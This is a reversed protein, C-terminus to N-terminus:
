ARGPFSLFIGINQAGRFYPLIYTMFSVTRSGKGYAVCRTCCQGTKEIHGEPSGKLARKLNCCCSLFSTASEWQQWSKISVWCPIAPSNLKKKHTRESIVTQQEKGVRQLTIYVQVRRRTGRLDREMYLCLPFYCWASSGCCFNATSCHKSWLIWSGLYHPHDWCSVNIFSFNRLINIGPRARTRSLLLYSKGLM